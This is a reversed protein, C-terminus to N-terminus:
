SGIALLGDGGATIRGGVAVRNPSASSIANVRVSTPLSTIAPAQYQWTNGSDTTRYVRAAGNVETAIYGINDDYFHIDNIVTVSSNIGGVTSWTKGANTTYYLVGAGSGVFWIDKSMVWVATLNVGVAPGTILSFTDGDNDSKLVANSGGVAVVTRGFGHVDNLNQTTVSGDTLVTVASTPNTMLYIYGGAGVVFTLSPNKSWIARPGKGAVYGTGVATWSTIQDDIDSFNAYHHNRGAESIVVLRDGVAAFRTGSVGGLTPIDISVWTSGGDNTRVIQSSLGPSGANALTLAYLKKTGDSATGCDGCSIFDYYLVDLVEALITSDAVSEFTIANIPFMDVFNLSGTLDVAANDDGALPNLTGMGLETLHARTLLLKSDWKDFQDPRQCSGMVVQINFNCGKRKLAWWVDRMFRDARSTFDTTGLEPTKEVTAVVDWKGRQSSSPCYVPEPEGLPTKPGDLTVCGYYAYPEAPSIGEQIFIRAQGGKLVQADQNGASTM